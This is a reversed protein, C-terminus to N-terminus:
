ERIEKSLLNRREGLIGYINSVDRDITELKTTMTALTQNMNDLTVSLRTLAQTSQEHLTILKDERRVSEEHNERKEAQKESIYGPFVKDRLWPWLDRYVFWLVLAITLGYSNILTSIDPMVVRKPLNFISNLLFGVLM